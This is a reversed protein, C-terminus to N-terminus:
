TFSCVAGCRVQMKQQQKQKKRVLKLEKRLRDEEAKEEEYPTLGWGGVSDSSTRVMGVEGAM